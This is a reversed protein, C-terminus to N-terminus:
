LAFFLSGLLIVVGVSITLTTSWSSGTIPTPFPTSTVTAVPANTASAVCGCTADSPNCAGRCVGFEPLCVYNTACDFNSSCAGNCAKAAEVENLNFAFFSALIILLSVIKYKNM